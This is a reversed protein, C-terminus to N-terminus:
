WNSLQSYPTLGVNSGVPSPALVVGNLYMDIRYTGVNDTCTVVGAIHQWTNRKVIETGTYSFAYFSGAIYFQITTVSNGVLM